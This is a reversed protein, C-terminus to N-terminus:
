WLWIKLAINSLYVPTAFLVVRLPIDLRKTRAAKSEFEVVWAVDKNAASKLIEVLLLSLDQSNSLNLLLSVRGSHFSEWYLLSGRWYCSIYPWNLIAILECVNLSSTLSVYKLLNTVPFCFSCNRFKGITPWHISICQFRQLTLKSLWLCHYHRM